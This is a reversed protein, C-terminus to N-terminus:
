KEFVGLQSPSGFEPHPEGLGEFRVRYGHTEAVQNAWSEFEARTWEFRHDDHRSELDGYVTNYERNPTTVLVKQPAAQGFIVKEFTRLRPIDLHEIVEVVTCVEFGHLREDRYLLSGHILSVRERLAPGAEDLRLRRTAREMEVYSVDMGVIRELGQVTLLRRLLKGDGCGVDVLSKPKWERIIEVLRAHRQDHLSPAKPATPEEPESEAVEEEPVIEDLQALQDLAQGVLSPKRGLYGRVIKNRYPHAALWGEGKDMLKQVENPDMYYHKKADLVPLLVYLHRLASQLKVTGRLTVDFYPSQGWEPFRGDLLPAVAEVAYGLPEFLERIATEGRRAPLVPIRIELPIPTEVLEPRDKCRGNIATKFAEILAVSLYSSAVYPRDNVYQELTSSGRVLGVPDIELMIAATTREPTAEPYIVHVQGFALDLSHARAPNKHLLYGLDTAPQHSTTLLLM